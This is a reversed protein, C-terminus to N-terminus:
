DECVIIYETLNYSVTIYQWCIRNKYYIIQQRELSFVDLCDKNITQTQVVHFM